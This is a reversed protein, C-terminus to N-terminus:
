RCQLMNELNKWEKKMIENNPSLYINTYGYFAVGTYNPLTRCFDLQRALITDEHMWESQADATGCKYAGLGYCLKVSPNQCLEAWALASSQFPKKPHQFGYYLQPMLVDCYGNERGWKKVDAYLTNENHEINGSPSVVLLVEPRIAQIAAYMASLLDNVNARRYDSLSLTGGRALYAQYQAEDITQANTPYFYDDIHIADVPYNKVLERVGDLILKQATLSAPQLYLGADCRLIPEVNGSEQWCRVPHNPALLSFDVNKSIRYPNLWAEVFLGAGKACDLFITLPDYDVGEGQTGTLYATWPFYASPYFADCFPRVQLIVTNMGSTCLNQTIEKAKKLFAERSCDAGKMSLEMYNVWVARIETERPVLVHPSEMEQTKETKSPKTLEIATFVVGLIVILLCIFLFPLLYKRKKRRM